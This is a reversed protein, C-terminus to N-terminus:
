RSIPSSFHFLSCCKQGNPCRDKARQGRVASVVPAPEDLRIRGVVVVEAVNRREPPIRGGNGAARGAPGAGVGDVTGVWVGPRGLRDVLQLAPAGVGDRERAQHGARRVKRFEVERLVVEAARRAVAPRPRAHEVDDHVADGLLRAEVDVARGATGPAREAALVLHRRVRASRDDDAQGVDLVVRVCGARREETRDRRGRRTRELRGNRVARRVDHERPTGGRVDAAVVELAAFARAARPRIDRFQKGFRGAGMGERAHEVRHLGVM